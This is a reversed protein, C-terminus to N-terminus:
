VQKGGPPSIARHESGVGSILGTTEAWHEAVGITVEAVVLLAEAVVACLKEAGKVEKTPVDEM